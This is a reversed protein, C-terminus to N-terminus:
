IHNLYQSKVNLDQQTNTASSYSAKQFVCNVSSYGWMLQRGDAAKKKYYIATKRLTILNSCNEYKTSNWTKHLFYYYNITFGCAEHLPDHDKHSAGCYLLETQNKFQLFALVICYQSVTYHFNWLAKSTYCIAKLSMLIKGTNLIWSVSDVSLAKIHM